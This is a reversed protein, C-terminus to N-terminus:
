SKGRLRFLHFQPKAGLRLHIGTTGFGNSIFLPNGGRVKWGGKEAIGFPGLRIQGGHTHGALVAAVESRGWTLVAADPNHTLFIVPGRSSNLAKGACTRGKSLDEVGAISWYEEQDEFIHADNEILIVGYDLLLKRLEDEGFEYDNNGWVFFVQGLSTLIMLNNKINEEPVGKEAIDGGIFVYDVPSFSDFMKKDLKRFHIDTIFLVKKEQIKVPLNIQEETVEYSRALHYMYFLVFFPFCLIAGAILFYNM